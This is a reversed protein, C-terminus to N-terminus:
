KIRLYFKLLYFKEPVYQLQFINLPVKCEGTNWNQIMKASKM